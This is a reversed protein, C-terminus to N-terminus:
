SSEKQLHDHQNAPTTDSLLRTREHQTARPIPRYVRRVLAVLSHFSAAAEADTIPEGHKQRYLEKFRQVYKQELATVPKEPAHMEEITKPNTTM